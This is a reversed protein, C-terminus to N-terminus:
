PYLSPPFPTPPEGSSNLARAEQERAFPLIAAFGGGRAPLGSPQLMRLDCGGAANFQALMREARDKPQVYAACGGRRLQDAAWAHSQTEGYGTPPPLVRAAGLMGTM